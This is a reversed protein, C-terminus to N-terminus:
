KILERMLDRFPKKSGCIRRLIAWICPSVSLLAFLFLVFIM